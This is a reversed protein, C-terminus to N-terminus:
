YLFCLVKHLVLMSFVSSQSIIRLGRSAHWPSESSSPRSNLNTTRHQIATLANGGECRTRPSKWPCIREASTRQRWMRKGQTSRSESSAGGQRRWFGDTMDPFVGIGGLVVSALCRNEKTM